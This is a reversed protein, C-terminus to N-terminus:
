VAFASQNKNAAWGSAIEWWSSEIKKENAQKSTYHEMWSDKTEVAELLRGTGGEREWECISKRNSRFAIKLGYFAWVFYFEYHSQQVESDEGGRGLIKTHKIELGVRASESHIETYTGLFFNLIQQQRVWGLM